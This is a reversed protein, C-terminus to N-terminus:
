PENETSLLSLFSDKLDKIEEFVEEVEYETEQRPDFARLQDAKWKWLNNM